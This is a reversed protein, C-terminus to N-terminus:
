GLRLEYTTPHLDAVLGYGLRSRMREEMGELDHPSKDASVVVQRNQDVLANFTYFFEEQTAERGAIFQLDDILLVDVSRFQEKFAMTDKTRLANVFQYVFNEATIYILRRDPHRKR